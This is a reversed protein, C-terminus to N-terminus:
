STTTRAESPASNASCASAMVTVPALSAGAIVDFPPPAVAEMENASFVAAACIVAIAMLILKAPLM